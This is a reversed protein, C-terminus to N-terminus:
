RNALKFRQRYHHSTPRRCLNRRMPPVQGAQHSGNDSQRHVLNEAPRPHVVLTNDAGFGSYLHRHLCLENTKRCTPDHSQIKRIGLHDERRDRRRNDSNYWATAESMTQKIARAQAKLNPAHCVRIGHRGNRKFKHQHRMQTRGLPRLYVQLQYPM